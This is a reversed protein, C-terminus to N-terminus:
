PSVAIVTSPLIQRNQYRSKKSGHYIKLGTVAGHRPILKNQMDIDQDDTYHDVASPEVDVPQSKFKSPPQTLTAESHLGGIHAFHDASM